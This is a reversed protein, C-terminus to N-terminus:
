GHKRAIAAARSLDREAYRETTKVSSHGLIVQAAELSDAARLETAKNHRLQNPSWCNKARWEKAQERRTQLEEKTEHKRRKRLSITKLEAPCGFARECAVLVATRFSQVSYCANVLRTTAADCYNQRAHDDLGQQPNFVYDTDRGGFQELLAQTRPGIMVVRSKGHHETKHKEPRYLWVDSEADIDCWRLSVAEGPRAGTLLM